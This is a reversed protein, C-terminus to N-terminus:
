HPAADPDKLYDSYLDFFVRRSDEPLGRLVKLMAAEFRKLREAGYVVETQKIIEKLTANVSNMVQAKQNTPTDDDDGSITALLNMGFRYQLGLEDTLNLKNIDIQLQGDIKQRLAMLEDQGLGDLVSETVKPLANPAGLNHNKLSM